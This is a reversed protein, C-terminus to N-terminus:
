RNATETAIKGIRKWLSIFLIEYKEINEFKAVKTAKPQM